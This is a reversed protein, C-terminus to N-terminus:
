ESDSSELAASRLPLPPVALSARGRTLAVLEANPQDNGAIRGRSVEPTVGHGTQRAFVRQMAAGLDCDVYWVEDFLTPLEDWPPLDLLLYNGESLVIRHAPTVAIAGPVPDGM